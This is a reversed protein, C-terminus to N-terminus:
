RKISADHPPSVCVRWQVGCPLGPFQKFVYGCLRTQIDSCDHGSQWAHAGDRFHPRVTFLTNQIQLEGQTNHINHFGLMKLLVVRPVGGSGQHFVSLKTFPKPNWTNSKRWCDVFTPFSWIKSVLSFVKLASNEGFAHDHSFSCGGMLM